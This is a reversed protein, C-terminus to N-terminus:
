KTAWSKQGEIYDSCAIFKTPVYDYALGQQAGIMSTCYGITTTERLITFFPKGLLKNQIKEVKTNISKAKNQFHTLVESKQNKNLKTFEQNFKSQSYDQVDKLGNIFNNKHKVDKSRSISYTVYEHVMAMKAGPSDTKPIIAECLDAILEKNKELYNIDPTSSSKFLKFGYFSALSGVSIIAISGIFKKRNM